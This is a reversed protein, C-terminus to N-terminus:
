LDLPINTWKERIAEEFTEFAELAVDHSGIELKLYSWDTEIVNLDPSKASRYM